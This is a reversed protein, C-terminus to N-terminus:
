LVMLHKFLNNWRIDSMCLKYKNFNDYNQMKKTNACIINCKSETMIINHMSMTAHCHRLTIHM